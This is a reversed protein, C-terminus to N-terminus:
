APPAHAEREFISAKCYSGREAHDQIPVESILKQAGSLGQRGLIGSAGVAFQFALM